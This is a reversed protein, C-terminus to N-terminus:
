TNMMLNKKDKIKLIDDCIISKIKSFSHGRELASVRNLSIMESLIDKNNFRDIKNTDNLSEGFFICAYIFQAEKFDQIIKDIERFLNKFIKGSIEPSNKNIGDPFLNLLDAFYKSRSWKRMGPREGTLHKDYISKWIDQSDDIVKIHVIWEKGDYYNKIKEIM